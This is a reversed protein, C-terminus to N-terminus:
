FPTDKDIGQGCTPCKSKESKTNDPEEEIDPMSGISPIDMGFAYLEPFEWDNALMDFDDSGFAVNDKIVISRLKEPSLEKLVKCPVKKIGLEKCARLRMNGGLVIYKGEYAYVLLERAGLMEPDDQISRILKTYREDKIFRPNKPVGELQGNNLLLKSTPILESQILEIM